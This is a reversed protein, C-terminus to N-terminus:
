YLISISTATCWVVTYQYMTLVFARTFIANQRHQTSLHTSCTCPSIRSHFQRNLFAKLENKKGNIREVSQKLETAVNNMYLWFVCRNAITTKM